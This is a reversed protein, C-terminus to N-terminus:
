TEASVSAYAYKGRAGRGPAVLSSTIQHSGAGNPLCESTSAVEKMGSAKSEEERENVRATACQEDFGNATSSEGRRGM